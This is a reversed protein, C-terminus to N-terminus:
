MASKASSLYDADKIMQLWADWGPCSLNWCARIAAFHQTTANLAVRSDPM